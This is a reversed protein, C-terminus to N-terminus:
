GVNKNRKYLETENREFAPKAIIEEWNKNILPFETLLKEIFFRWGEFQETVIYTENNLEIKLCIDDIVFRDVKYGTLKEIKTWQIQTIIGDYNILFGNKILEIKETRVINRKKLAFLCSILTLVLIVGTGYTILYLWMVVNHIEPAFIKLISESSFFLIITLIIFLLIHIGIIKGKKV